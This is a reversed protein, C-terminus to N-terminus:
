GSQKIESLNRVSKSSWTVSSTDHVKLTLRDSTLIVPHYLTDADFVIIWACTLQRLDLKTFIIGSCFACVYCMNLTMIDFILIAIVGGGIARNLEFKTCLKLVDCAICQLHELEFTLPRMTLHWPWLTFYHILLLFTIIRCRIPEAVEFKAHSCRM